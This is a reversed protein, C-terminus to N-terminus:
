TVKEREHYTGKLLDRVTNFTEVVEANDDGPNNM